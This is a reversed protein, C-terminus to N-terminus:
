LATRSTTVESCEASIADLQNRQLESTKIMGMTYGRHHGPQGRFDRWNGSHDNRGYEVYFEFGHEPIMYRIFLNAVQNDPDHGRPVGNDRLAQRLGPEFLRKAQM